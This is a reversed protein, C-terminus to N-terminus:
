PLVLRIIKFYRQKKYQKAEKERARGFVDKTSDAYLATVAGGVFVMQDNLTGLAKAVRSIAKITIAKNSM